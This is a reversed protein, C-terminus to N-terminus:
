YLTQCIHLIWCINTSHTLSPTFVKVVILRMLQGLDRHEREAKQWIHSFSCKDEWDRLMRLVICLNGMITYKKKNQAWIGVPGATAGRSHLHRGETQSLFLSEKGVVMECRNWACAVCKEVRRCVEAVEGSWLILLTFLFILSIGKVNSIM